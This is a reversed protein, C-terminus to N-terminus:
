RSAAGGVTTPLRPPTRAGRTSDLDIAGLANLGLMKVIEEQNFAAAHEAGSPLAITIYLPAPKEDVFRFWLLYEGGPKLDAAGLSQLVLHEAREPAKAGLIEKADAVFFKKFGGDMEGTVPIIYWEILNAPFIFAWAMGRPQGEPVRFRIADLQKGRANLTLKHWQAKGQELSAAVQRFRAAVSQLPKRFAASGPTEAVADTLAKDFQTETIVREDAPDATAFDADKPRLWFLGPRVPRQADGM